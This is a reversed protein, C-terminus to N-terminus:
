GNTYWEWGIETAFCWGSVSGVAGMQLAKDGSERFVELIPSELVWTALGPGGTLLGESDVHVVEFIQGFIGVVQPGVVADHICEPDAFFGPVLDIGDLFIDDIGEEGDDSFDATVEEEGVAGVGVVGGKASGGDVLGDKIVPDEKDVDTSVAFMELGEGLAKLHERTDNDM